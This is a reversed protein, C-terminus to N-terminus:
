AAVEKIEKWWRIDLRNENIMRTLFAAAEENTTDGRLARPHEDLERLEERTIHEEIVGYGLVISFDFPYFLIAQETDNLGLWKGAVTGFDLYDDLFHVVNKDDVVFESLNGVIVAWGGICASTGCVNKDEVMVNQEPEGRNDGNWYAHNFMQKSLTLLFDRLKTVNEINITM